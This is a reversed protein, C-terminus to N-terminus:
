VDRARRGARAIEEHRKVYELVNDGNVGHQRRHDRIDVRSYWAAPTTM